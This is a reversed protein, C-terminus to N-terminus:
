RWFEKIMRNQSATPRGNGGAAAPTNLPDRDM